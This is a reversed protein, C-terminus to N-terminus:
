DPLNFNMHVITVTAEAAPTYKWQRVADEAARGLLPHGSEFKVDGVHGDPEISIELIVVGSLHLRKALEPYEPSRQQLVTRKLESANSAMTAISWFLLLSALLRLPRHIHM